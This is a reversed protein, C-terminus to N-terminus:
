FNWGLRELHYAFTFYFSLFLQIFSVKSVPNPHFIEFPHLFISLNRFCSACRSSLADAYTSNMCLKDFCHIDKGEFLYAFVTKDHHSQFINERKEPFVSWSIPNAYERSPSLDVLLSKSHLFNRSLSFDSWVKKKVNKKKKVDKTLRKEPPSFLKARQLVHTIAHLESIGFFDIHLDSVLLYFDCLVKLFTQPSIVSSKLSVWFGLCIQPSIFSSWKYSSISKINLNIEFQYQFKLAWYVKINRNIRIM